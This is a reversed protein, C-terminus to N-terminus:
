EMSQQQAQIQEEQYDVLEDHMAALERYLKVTKLYHESLEQLGIDTLAKGEEDIYAAPDFDTEATTSANLLRVANVSLVDSPCDNSIQAFSYEVGSEDNIIPSPDTNAIVTVPQKTVAVHKKIEKQIADVVQDSADVKSQLAHDNKISQQVAAQDQKRVEQLPAVKAAEVRISKEAWGTLFGSGFLAVSLLAYAGIKTLPNM